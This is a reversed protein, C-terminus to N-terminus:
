LADGKGLNCPECLTQLNELVTEGGNAWALIHDVHLHLGPFASPSKGCACCRFNDRKLVQFRLRLNAARGTRQSNQTEENKPIVTENTNAYNVFERLALNWTRFRRKYPGGTIKSPLQDLEAIRPQRGRLEWLMMINAFLEDDSYNLTNGSQFGAVEVAKNWTGFRRKITAPDYKGSKSYSVITVIGDPQQKGVARLDELLEETSVPGGVRELQFHGSM